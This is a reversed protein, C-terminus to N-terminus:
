WFNCKKEPNMPDQRRCKFALSFEPLNMLPVNCREEGPAYKGDRQSESSTCMVYCFAAFFLQEKSLHTMNPLRVDPGDRLFAALAAPVGTADCFREPDYEPMLQRGFIKDYYLHSNRICEVKEYYTEYTVPDRWRQKTNLANMEFATVDFAHMIEHGLISGLAGYNIVKPFDDSYMPVTLFGLLVRVLLKAAILHANPLLTDDHHMSMDPGFAAKRTADVAMSMGEAFSVNAPLVFDPYREEFFDMTPYVWTFTIRRLRAIVRSRTQNDLWASEQVELLVQDQIDQFMNRLRIESNDTLVSRLYLVSLHPGATQAVRLHCRVNRDQDSVPTMRGITASYDPALSRALMWTIAYAYELTNPADFVVRDLARRLQVDMLVFTYVHAAAAQNILDQSRFLWEPVSHPIDSSYSQQLIRMIREEGSILYQVTSNLTANDGVSGYQRLFTGVFSEYEGLAQLRRRESEFQFASSSNLVTVDIIRPDGSAIVLDVQFLVYVNWYLAWFLLAGLLNIPRGPAPALGPWPLGTSIIMDRIEGLQELGEAQVAICARYLTVSAAFSPPLDKPAETLNILYNTSANLIRRRMMDLMGLNPHSKRWGDCVHLYFNNCPDKRRNISANLQRAYELCAASECVTYGPPPADSHSVKRHKLLFKALFVVILTIVVVVVLIVCCILIVTITGDDTYSEVDGESESPIEVRTQEM